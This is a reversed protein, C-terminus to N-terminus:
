QQATSYDQCLYIFSILAQRDSLVCTILAQRDSLVFWHPRISCVISSFSSIAWNVNNLLFVVLLHLIGRFARTCYQAISAYWCRDIIESFPWYSSLKDSQPMVVVQQRNALISCSRNILIDIAASHTFSLLCGVIFCLFSSYNDCLMQWKWYWGIHSKANTSCEKCENYQNYLLMNHGKRRFIIDELFESIAWFATSIATTCFSRFRLFTAM